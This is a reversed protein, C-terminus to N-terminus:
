ISVGGPLRNKDEGEISSPFRGERLFGLILRRALPHDMIFSHLTPVVAFAAAGPLKTTEVTLIGDNAGRLLPNYGRGDNKGGAIIAFPFAPVALRKELESWQRGLQQGAVGAIGRFFINDALVDAITARNNPPALMVFRGFEPPSGKTSGTLATNNTAEAERKLDGLYHRIVINGMSHGIFHIRQLGQLNDIVKRLTRAHEAIECRTSPYELSLVQFGGEERLYGCLAEMSSRSRMLGHLVLVAEGQMEPLRQTRKIHELAALCLGYSGWAHRRNREDLLRYHGTFVNRQIRWQQFLLEDAWFQRGGLTPRPRRAIVGWDWEQSALWAAWQSLKASLLPGFGLWRRVM